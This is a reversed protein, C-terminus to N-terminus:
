RLQEEAAVLILELELRLDEPQVERLRPRVKEIARCIERKGLLTDLRSVSQRNTARATRLRGIYPDKAQKAELEDLNKKLAIRASDLGM